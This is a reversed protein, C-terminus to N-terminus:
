RDDEQEDSFRDALRQRAAHLHAKVTGEACQMVRAVDGVPLDDAYYLAVAEAQRRPLDRVAAWFEQSDEDLEVTTTAREARATLRAIAAIERSIRRFRSRVLHIAVRRVWADPRDYGGVTGWRRMARVFAEQTADEAVQWDGCLAYVLRLIREHHQGYLGVFTARDQRASHADTAM